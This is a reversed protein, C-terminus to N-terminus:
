TLRGKSRALAQRVRQLDDLTTALPKETVIHINRAALALLQEARVGNEDCILCVDKMTHEILHRWDRYAQANKALPEQKILKEAAGPEDDAVAVIQCDGLEAAGKIVVSQHGKLGIMGIKM